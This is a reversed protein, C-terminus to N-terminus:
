LRFRVKAPQPPRGFPSGAFTHRNRDLDGNVLKSYDDNDTLM